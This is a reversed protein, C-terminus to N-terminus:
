VLHGCLELPSWLHIRYIVSVLTGAIDDRRYINNYIYLKQGCIVKTVLLSTRAPYSAPPLLHSVWSTLTFMTTPVFYLFIYKRHLSVLEIKMGVVSYYGQKSWAEATTEEYDVSFAYGQIKISTDM